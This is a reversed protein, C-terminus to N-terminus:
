SAGAALVEIQNVIQLGECLRFAIRLTMQLHYYRNVYGSLVVKSDAIQCRVNRLPFGSALLREQIRDCM